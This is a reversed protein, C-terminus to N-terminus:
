KKPGFYDLEDDPLPEFFSDPVTFKGKYIGIPRPEGPEFPVIEAIALDGRCILVTEGAAAREVLESFRKKAERINVKIM